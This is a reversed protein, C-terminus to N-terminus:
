KQNQPVIPMKYNFHTYCIRLVRFIFWKLFDVKLKRMTHLMRRSEGVEVESFQELRNEFYGAKELIVRFNTDFYLEKERM